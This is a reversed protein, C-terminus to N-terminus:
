REGHLEESYLSFAFLATKAKELTSPAISIEGEGKPSPTPSASPLPANARRETMRLSPACRGLRLIKNQVCFGNRVRCFIYSTFNQVLLSANKM